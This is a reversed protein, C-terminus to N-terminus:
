PKADLIRIQGSGAKELGLRERAMRRLRDPGAERDTEIRLLNHEHGLEAILRRTSEIRYGLNMAEVRVMVQAVGLLLILIAVVVLRRRTGAVAPDFSRRAWWASITGRGGRRAM